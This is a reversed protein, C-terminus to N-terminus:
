PKGGKILALVPQADWRGRGLAMHWLAKRVMAIALVHDPTDVTFQAIQGNEKAYVTTTIGYPNTVNVLDGFGNDALTM